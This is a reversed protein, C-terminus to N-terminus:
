ENEGGARMKLDAIVMSYNVYAQYPSGYPSFYAHVDGDNAWKTCMYYFHDSTQLRRWDEILEADKSKLILPELEYIARLADDQRSCGRSATLDRGVEAWPMPLRCDFADEPTYRLLAQRPTV